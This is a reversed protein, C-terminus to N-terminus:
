FRRPYRKRTCPGLYDLARARCVSHVPEPLCGGSYAPLFRLNRVACSSGSPLPGSRMLTPQSLDRGVTDEVEGDLLVKLVFSRYILSVLSVSADLGEEVLSELLSWTKTRSVRFVPVFVLAQPGCRNGAEDVTLM